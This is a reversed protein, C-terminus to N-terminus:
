AQKRGDVLKRFCVIHGDEIGAMRTGCFPQLRGTKRKILANPHVRREAEMVVVLKLHVSKGHNRVAACQGFFAAKECADAM